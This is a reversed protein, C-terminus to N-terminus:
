QRIWVFSKVVNATTVGYGVINGSEDVGTATSTRMDLPLLAHLDVFDRNPGVWAVARSEKPTGIADTTNGHGVITDGSIQTAFSHRYPSSLYNVTLASGNWTVASYFRIDRPRAENRVRVDLGLYGIQTVGDTDSCLSVSYGRVHLDTFSNATGRWFGATTGKSGTRAGAQQGGGVGYVFMNKGLDVVSLNALNWLLVHSNGIGREADGESATGVVEAGDTAIAKGVVYAFPVPLPTAQAGQWILPHQNLSSIGGYGVSTSGSMGYITSFAYGAPHVDHAGSGDWITAHNTLSGAAVQGSLCNALGGASIEQAVYSQSFASTTAAFALLFLISKTNNM